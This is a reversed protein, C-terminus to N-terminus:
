HLNPTDRTPLEASRLMVPHRERGCRKSNTSKAADDHPSLFLQCPDDSNMALPEGMCDNVIEVLASFQIGKRKTCSRMKTM